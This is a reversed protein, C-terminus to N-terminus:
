RCKINTNHMSRLCIRVKDVDDVCDPYLLTLYEAIQERENMVATHLPTVGSPQKGHVMTKNVLQKVSVQDGEIM